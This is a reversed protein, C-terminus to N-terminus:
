IKKFLPKIEALKHCPKVERYLWEKKSKLNLQKKINESTIPLFPNILIELTAILQICINLVLAAEQKNNKITIWPENDNIFKNARDIFVFINKLAEKFRGAEILDGVQELIINCNEFIEKKDQSLNDKDIEPVEGNFNNKVFTLTRNVFNGLKGLLEANVRTKYDSWSFNSDSKEPGNIILFYRLTDAEYDKLFDPIWVGWKRSKSFQKGEFNLYESSIIRSPLNFDGVGMLMSPWIITHFLINDKGHVYYHICNKDLWFDQWKDKAEQNIAWEQSASLYGCVAEFWVYVCKGEFGDVPVPIGWESDRTIARDKLGGELFKKTFNVANERWGESKNSWKELKDQFASLKLFYHESDKWIPENSCIKCKPRILTKAETLEGCNDCQDGRASEFNCKSCQGEIYRDPLFKACDKCYPLNQTKKFILKQNLLTLFLGQVVKKHVANTTKSFFDYTFRLDKILNDNFEKNYKEVIEAPKVKQREAEVAIPTGHCDSGSVFLVESGKLRFYRALVDSGILSSVHGLHLSGNAYPWAAGIFVKKPTANSM